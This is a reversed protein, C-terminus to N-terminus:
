PKRWREYSVGVSDADDLAETKDLTLKLRQIRPDAFAADAIASALDELLEHHRSAAVQRALEALAAYNVAEGLAGNPRVASDDVQADLSLEVPQARDRETDYVGVEAMLRLKVVRVSLREGAYAPQIASDDARLADLKM